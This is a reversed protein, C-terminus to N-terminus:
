KKMRKISKHNKIISKIGYPSKFAITLIDGKVDIVVGSGFLTHSIVDGVNFIVENEEYNDEYNSSVKSNYWGLDANSISKYEQKIEELNENGIEKLFMSPGSSNTGFSYGDSCTIFLMEKARTIAVYAIRREEQFDTSKNPPFIGGSFGILFVIRYESGKAVHVTMLSVTDDNNIKQESTDTYLSIEQLYDSITANEHENEFMLVANILEDINENKEELDLTKLYERYSISEIIKILAKSPTLNQIKSRLDIILQRFNNALKINWDVNEKLELCDFFSINNKQSYEEIKQVTREGIGRTPVNIVRKISLEDEGIMLKLYALLDKIEKRQYFKIGGFIKYPISNNMLQDECFRSLYNSRYLIGIDSYKYGKKVFEIIKKAVFLGESSQSDGYYYKIKEGSNNNTILSKEIRGYNNKILANSGLLINKTSRYNVDLIILKANPYARRFDKFIWEYAGRWKYISQDPDGVVFINNHLPDILMKLINFQTENTDQFEDVLIYKFKNQWKTRIDNRTLLLEETLLLLDNFDLLNNMLLKRRYENFIIKIAKYEDISYMQFRKLFNTGINFDNINIKEFKITEILQIAKKFKITSCINQTIKNVRYIERILSMQDEDDIVGFDKARNLKDIDEKLIRLCISHYTGIWSLSKTGILKNVRFKMENAAKNTFTIALISSPRFGDHEILYAIRTTLVKTKGTGAGAVVITPGNQTTVASLQNQNLEKLNLM